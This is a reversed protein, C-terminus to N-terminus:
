IGGNKCPECFMKLPYGAYDVVIGRESLVTKMGKPINSPYCIHSAVALVKAIEIVM